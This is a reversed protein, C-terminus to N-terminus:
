NKFAEDPTIWSLYSFSFMTEMKKKKLISIKPTKKVADLIPMQFSDIPDM